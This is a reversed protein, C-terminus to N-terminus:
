RHAEIYRGRSQRTGGAGRPPGSRASRAATLRRTTYGHGGTRRFTPARATFGFFLGPREYSTLGPEGPVLPRDGRGPQHCGAEAPHGSRRAPEGLCPPRGPARRRLHSLRHGERQRISRQGSDEAQVAVPAFLPETPSETVKTRIPPSATGGASAAPRTCRRLAWDAIKAVAEKRQLELLADSPLAKAQLRIDHRVFIGSRCVERCEVDLGVQSDLLDNVTMPVECSVDQGAASWWRWCVVEAILPPAENTLRSERSRRLVTGRRQRRTPLGLLQSAERDAVGGVDPSRGSGVERSRGAIDPAVGNSRGTEQHTCSKWRKPEDTHRM